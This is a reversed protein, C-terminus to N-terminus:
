RAASRRSYRRMCGRPSSANAIRSPRLFLGAAHAAIIRRSWDIEEAGPAFAANAPAIQKPHVLTKGDFGLERGQQCALAVTPADEWLLEAPTINHYHIASRDCRDLVFGFAPSGISYHLVAADGPRAVRDWEHAPRVADALEPHIRGDECLIESRLGMARLM